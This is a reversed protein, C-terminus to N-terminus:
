FNATVSLFARRGYYDYNSTLPSNGITPVVGANQNNGGDVTIRPPETGLLNAIGATIKFNDFTRTASLSHYVTAPVKLDVCIPGTVQFDSCIDGYIDIYDQESNQPGIVDVGWFFSWLDNPRYVVNVDAVWEPEGIEGNNDVMNGPFTEIEDRLQLNGQALVQIEGYRGLDQTVDVTLDFGENRQRSINIFPTEVRRVGFEGATGAPRRTFLQCFGEDPGFFESNYCNYLVGASLAAIEGEIEIDFYDLAVNLRTGGGIRPTLVISATKATSTEPALTSETGAAFGGRRIVTAEVGGSPLDDPVGPLGIEPIGALCNARVRDNVEPNASLQICPDIERQSLTGVEDALYLEFLAPARFSTGYRARFQIWDNVRWNAGVSYTWNGNDSDTQGDSGRIFKVNTVRASGSLTFEQIFPTDYILPIEIEAFAEKTETEGFTRGSMTGPWINGALRAPGPLDDISDWRAAVGAAVQLQGAPLAFVPGSVSAEAIYQDYRTSGTDVGFLFEEEEPTLNGALFDGTTWDIDVCDVGSQFEVGACSGTRFDHWRVADNYAYDNSYSGESRSYQFYGNYGWDPLFSGFEGDAWLLGRYYDVDVWSDSRDTIATPSLFFLGSWGPSFPDGFGTGDFDETFGTLYYFQAYSDHYTKRKNYLFEVGVELNGTVDYAGEVYGTYLETEPIVTVKAQFPHYANILGEILRESGEPLPYDLENSVRFFGPPLGITGYPSEAPNPQIFQALNGDYDFQYLGSPNFDYDYTWVHGWLFDNCRPSGTRPDIIDARMGNSDYDIDGNPLTRGTDVGEFIYQEPCDLYSRDRRRLEERKNWDLTATIHGNGFNHGWTGSIRYEEGGSQFPRSAMADFQFGDAKKTIINVVGAVADSGYISSAGTKLIEVNEIVSLPLANLDFAAVSGRTGSPGARRGNLLVLTRNAGLGRLSITEAGLGGDTNFVASIASTVQASGAAIPSNQLMQATNVQGQAQAIEPSVIALPDPSNFADPRRIRSGTVFIPEGEGSEEIVAGEALAEPERSEQAQLPQAALFAILAIPAAAGKLHSQKNVPEIGWSAPTGAM